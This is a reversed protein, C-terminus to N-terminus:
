KNVSLGEFKLLANAIYTQLKIKQKQIKEKLREVINKSTTRRVVEKELKSEPQIAIRKNKRLSEKNDQFLRDEELKSESQSQIANRKNKRRSEKNEQFLRDKELKEM